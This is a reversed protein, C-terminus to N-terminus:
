YPFDHSHSWGYLYYYSLVKIGDMRLPKLRQYSGDAVVVDVELKKLTQALAKTWPSAGVSLLGNEEEAALSIKRALPGLSLGHVLM